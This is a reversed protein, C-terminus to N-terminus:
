GRNYLPLDWIIKNWPSKEEELLRECAKQYLHGDKETEVVSWFERGTLFSEALEQWSDFRSQLVQAASLIRNWADEEEIYGAMFGTRCNDIYRLLDWALFSASKIGARNTRIMELRHAEEEREQIAKISPIFQTEYEAIQAPTMATIKAITEGFEARHGTDLLWEQVEEFEESDDIEWERSLQKQAFKQRRESPMAGGLLHYNQGRIQSFMAVAALAWSRPSVAPVKPKPTFLSKIGLLIGRTISRFKHVFLSAAIVILVYLFASWFGRTQHFQMTAVITAVLAGGIYAAIVLYYVADTSTRVGSITRVRKVLIGRYSMLMLVAGVAAFIYPSNPTVEM